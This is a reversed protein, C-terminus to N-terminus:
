SGAFTTATAQGALPGLEEIMPGLWQRYPDASGIGKRNLPQRVQESSATAVAETGLHFNICDPEYELGLFDLMRRTQGEIDDVVDEYRVSLIRGPAAQKMADFLRVYDRYFQGVHRLDNTAPFGEAFLMKFNAWCCDLANRRVDIVKAKPLALLILGIQMWNLNNKDIFYPKGTRRYDMTAQVYREGVWSIQSNSLNKLLAAYHEPDAVKHRVNEALNRVIRLEGTGEITSHRGLIREVLTTGARPMGNIFIASADAWGSSSRQQYFNSTFLQIVGDVASSIPAPEYPQNALRIKKGEVFHDFAQRRNGARDALLGLALHLPGEDPTGSRSNLANSIADCDADDLEAPFYNALSWWASGGSPDIALARRFARISDDRRGLTRYHHALNTWREPRTEDLSVLREFILAALDIDGVEARAQALHTLAPVNEPKRAIIEELVDIAERLRVQKALCTALLMSARLFSPARALVTRLLQEARELEWLKISAEAAITRALLDEPNAQLFQQAIQLAEASRGEADALAADRMEPVALSAQIAGLEAGEADAIYGLKRCAEAALRFVRADPRQRVLAEAQRLAASPDRDLLGLGKALAEEFSGSGLHVSSSPEAMSM